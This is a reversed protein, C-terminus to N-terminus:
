AGATPDSRSRGGASTPSISTSAVPMSPSASMSRGSPHMSSRAPRSCISRRASRRRPEAGGRDGRLLPAAALRAPAQQPDALNGPPRRDPPRCLRHRHRHSVARHDGRDRRARRHAHRVTLRAIRQRCRAIRAAPEPGAAPKTDSAVAQPAQDPRLRGENVRTDKWLKRAAMIPDIGADQWWAAENGVRHVLRHHIRCLPVTFEDSAKRGLARPQMFRLHHPDSPKRGCILCPQKAVHRLHDRDRYRRPAPIALVSKDIDSAPKDAIPVVARASRRMVPTPTTEAPDGSNPLPEDPPPLATLRQEFADEVLKADTTTLRNKAALAGRAWSTASEQSQLSAIEGVLRDRLAASEDPSLVPASAPRVAQRARGNGHSRPPLPWGDAPRAGNVM